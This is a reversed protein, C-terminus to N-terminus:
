LKGITFTSEDVPVSLNYSPADPGAGLFYLEVEPQRATNATSPAANALAAMFTLAAAVTFAKM